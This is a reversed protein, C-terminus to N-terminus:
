KQDIHRFSSCPLGAAELLLRVENLQESARRLSQAMAGDGKGFFEIDALPGEINGEIGSCQWHKGPPEGFIVKMPTAEPFLAGRIAELTKRDETM